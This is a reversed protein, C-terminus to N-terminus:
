SCYLKLISVAVKNEKETPVKYKGGEADTLAKYLCYDMDKIGLVVPM